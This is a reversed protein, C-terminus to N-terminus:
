GVCEVQIMGDRGAGGAVNSNNLTSAGSGGQGPQEADHQAGSSFPVPGCGYASGGDGGCPTNGSGSFFGGRGVGGRLILAGTPGIGIGGPTPGATVSAGQGGTASMLSGFSSLGGALGPNQGAAPRAAGLGVVANYVSGPTVNFPYESYGGGGGGCPTAYVGSSSSVGAGSGGAGWIRVKIQTVNPPVTYTYTGATQYTAEQYQAPPAQSAGVLQLYFGDFILYAFQGAKLENGTLAAGRYVIQVAPQGNIVATAAGTNTFKAQVAIQQGFSLVTTSPNLVVNMANAVGNDVGYTWKGAQVGAPVAPLTTPIFPAQAFASINTGTITTQGYAVTVVALGVWGADPIPSTQTGSTAAVGAKLQIAVVGRRVTNQKQGNGGPGQFTNGKNVPDQYTLVTAGTDSDAYQAEILINQAFGITTPPVLTLTVPDLNVGQKVITHADVALGSVASAELNEQQYIQGASLIVSLSAPNSASVTFGAVITTTGLMAQSIQSLATMTFQGLTLVDLSRPVQGFYVIPRDIAAEWPRAPAVM